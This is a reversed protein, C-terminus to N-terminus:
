GRRDAQISEGGKRERVKKRRMTEWERRRERVRTWMGGRRGGGGRERGGDGGGTGEMGSGREVM